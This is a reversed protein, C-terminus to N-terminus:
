RRDDCSDYENAVEKPFHVKVTTGQGTQSTIWIGYPPGYFHQMLKYVNNLAIRNHTGLTRPTEELPLTVVGDCNPFGVGDDSILAQFGDATKSLHVTVAGPGNKPEIGHTVANEVIMELTLKPVLCSLLSPDEVVLHYGVRDGFRVSQLNIYFQVYQLEQSLPIKTSGTNLRAQSLSAFDSVMKHIDASGEMQASIAITNLVNYMFHPNIQSQLLRIEADMAVLKKEYVDNILHEITDTMANFASSVTAFEETDYDPLKSSFDQHAVQNLRGAIEPLPHTLKQVTYFVACSLVVLLVIFVFIYPLVAQYLLHSLQNAPIGMVCTIGMSLHGTYMLYESGNLDTEYCSARYVSTLAQETSDTLTINGSQRLIDSSKDFLVWFSDPYDMTKSMLCEVAAPNIAFIVTGIPEIWEDYVTYIINLCSGDMVLLVDNGNDLFQQYLRCYADDLTKQEMSLFERYTVRHYAGSEDFLYVMEIFPLGADVINKDSYIDVVNGLAEATASESGTQPDRSPNMLAPSLISDRRINLLIDEALTLKNSLSESIAEMAFEAERRIYNGMVNGTLVLLVLISVLLATSLFVTCVAVLRRRLSPLRPKEAKLIAM